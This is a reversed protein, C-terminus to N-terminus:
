VKKKYSWKLAKFRSARARASGRGPGQLVPGTETKGPGGFMQEIGCGHAQGPAWMRVRSATWLRRTIALQLSRNPLQM